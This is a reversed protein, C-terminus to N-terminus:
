RIAAACRPGGRGRLARFGEGGLAVTELGIHMLIEAGEAVRITVAHREAHLTAVVGDCPAHICDGTPDIAVGDGM